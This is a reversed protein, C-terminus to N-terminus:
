HKYQRTTHISSMFCLDYVNHQINVKIEIREWQEVITITFGKPLCKWSKKQVNYKWLQSAVVGDTMAVNKLNMKIPNKKYTYTHVYKQNSQNWNWYHKEGFSLFVYFSLFFLLSFSCLSFTAVSLLISFIMIIISIQKTSQETLTSYKCKSIPYLKWCFCISQKDRWKLLWIHPDIIKDTM